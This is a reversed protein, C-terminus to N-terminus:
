RLRDTRTGVLSAALPLERRLAQIKFDRKFNEIESSVKAIERKFYEM